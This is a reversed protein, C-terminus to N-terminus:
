CGGQYGRYYEGIYGQIYGGKFLKSLSVQLNLTSLVTENSPGLDPLALAGTRKRLHSHYAAM